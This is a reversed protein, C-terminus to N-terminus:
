SSSFIYIGDTPRKYDRILSPNKGAIEAIFTKTEEDDIKVLSDQCNELVKVNDM